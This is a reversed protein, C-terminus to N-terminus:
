SGVVEFVMEIVIRWCVSLRVDHEYCTTSSSCVQYLYFGIQKHESFSHASQMVSVVVTTADRGDANREVSFEYQPNNWFSAIYVFLLGDVRGLYTLSNIYPAIKCFTVFRRLEVVWLSFDESVASIAWSLGMTATRDALLELGAARCYCLM